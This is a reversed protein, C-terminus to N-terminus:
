CQNSYEFIDNFLEPVYTPRWMDYQEAVIDFTWGLGKIAM